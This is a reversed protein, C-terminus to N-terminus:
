ARRPAQEAEGPAVQEERLVRSQQQLAPSALARTPGVLDRAGEVVSKRPRTRVRCTLVPEGLSSAGRERPVPVSAHGTIEWIDVYSMAVYQSRINPRISRPAM